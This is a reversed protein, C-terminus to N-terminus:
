KHDGRLENYKQKYLLHKEIDIGLELAGALIMLINDAMEDGISNKINNEFIKCFDVAGTIKENEFIDIDVSYKKDDIAKWLEYSEEEIKKQIALESDDKYFGCKVVHDHASDAIDNINM